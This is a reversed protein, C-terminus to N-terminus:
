RCIVTDYGTRSAWTHSSNTVWLHISYTGLGCDLAQPFGSPLRSHNGNRDTTYGGKSNSYILTGNRYIKWRYTIKTSALFGVTHASWTIGSSTCSIVPYVDGKLALALTHGSSPVVGSLAAVVVFMLGFWRHPPRSSREDAARLPASRLTVLDVFLDHRPRPMFSM